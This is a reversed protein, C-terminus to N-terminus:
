FYSFDFSDASRIFADVRSFCFIIEVLELELRLDLQEVCYPECFLIIEIACGSVGTTAVELEL